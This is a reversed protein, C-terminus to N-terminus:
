KCVERAKKNLESNQFERARKGNAWVNPTENLQVQDTNELENLSAWEYFGVVKQSERYYQKLTQLQQKLKKNDNVVKPNSRCETCLQRTNIREMCNCGYCKGYHESM